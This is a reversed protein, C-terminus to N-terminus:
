EQYHITVTVGPMGGPAQIQMGVGACTGTPATGSIATAPLNIEKGPAAIWRQTARQNIGIDLLIQNANYTPETTYTQSATCQLGTEDPDLPVPTVASGAGLTGFRQLIFSLVADAPTSTSGMIIDYINPRVTNSSILGM